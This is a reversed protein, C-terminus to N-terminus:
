VCRGWFESKEESKLIKIKIIKFFYIKQPFNKLFVELFRFKQPVDGSFKSGPPRGGGGAAAGMTIVHCTFCLSLQCVGGVKRDHTISPSTKTVQLSTMYAAMIHGTCPDGVILQVQNM